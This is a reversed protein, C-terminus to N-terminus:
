RRRFSSAARSAFGFVRAQDFFMVACSGALGDACHMTQGGSTSGAPLRAGRQAARGDLEARLVHARFRLPRERTFDGRGHQFVHTALVDDDAVGLTAQDIALRVLEHGTFELGHLRLRQHRDQADALLERVAVGIARHIHNGTLEIGTSSSDPMSAKALATIAYSGTQAM